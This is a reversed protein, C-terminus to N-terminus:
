PHLRQLLHPRGRRLWCDAHEVVSVASQMLARRAQTAGSSRLASRWADASPQSLRQRAMEPSRRGSLLVIHMYLGPVQEDCPLMQRACSSHLPKNIHAPIQRATCCVHPLYSLTHWPLTFSAIGPKSPETIPNGEYIFAGRIISEGHRDLLPKYGECFLATSPKSNPESDPDCMGASSMGLSCMGKVTWKDLCPKLRCFISMLTSATFQQNRHSASLLALCRNQNGMKAQLGLGISYGVDTPLSRHDCARLTIDNQVVSFTHCVM